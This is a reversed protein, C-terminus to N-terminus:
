GPSLTGELGLEPAISRMALIVNQIHEWLEIGFDAAAAAM